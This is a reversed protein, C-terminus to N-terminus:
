RSARVMVRRNERKLMSVRLNGLAVNVQEISPRSSNDKQKTRVEVSFQALPELASCVRTLVYTCSGVFSFVAGDFTSCYSDSHATCTGPSSSRLPGCTQGDACSSSNTSSSSSCSLQGASCVCQTSQDTWFQSDLDCQM